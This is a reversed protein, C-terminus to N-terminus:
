RRSRRRLHARQLRAPPYRTESISWALRKPIWPSEGPALGHALRVRTIAPNLTETIAAIRPPLPTADPTQQEIAASVAGCSDHSLVMILPVHLIEVAYELSGVVSSSIVQGVNRVVFLDGLGKDFIIEASLRSDACGFLAAHPVQGTAVDARHDVNQRPHQPNVLFLASTAV